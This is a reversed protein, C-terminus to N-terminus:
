QWDDPNAETFHAVVEANVADVLVLGRQTPPDEASFLLVRWTPRGRLGRWGLQASAHGVAFSVQAAAAVLADGDKVKLPWAAVLHYLAIAGLAVGAWLFGDNVLVGGTHHTAWLALLAAAMVLYMRAPTRRRAIDPFTYAGVYSSVDLDAPLEDGHHQYSDAPEEKV